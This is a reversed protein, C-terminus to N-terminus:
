KRITSDPHKPGGGITVLYADFFTDLWDPQPGLRLVGVECTRLSFQIVHGTLLVWSHLFSGDPPTSLELVEGTPSSYYVGKQVLGKRQITHGVVCNIDIRFTLCVPDLHIGTGGKPIEINWYGVRSTSKYSKILSISLVQCNCTCFNM